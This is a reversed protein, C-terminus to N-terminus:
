TQATTILKRITVAEELETQKCDKSNSSDFSHRFFLSSPNKKKSPFFDLRCLIFNSFYADVFFHALSVSKGNHSQALLASLYLNM